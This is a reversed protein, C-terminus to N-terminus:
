ILRCDLSAPLKARIALYDEKSMITVESLAPHLPERFKKRGYDILHQQLRTEEEEDLFISADEEEQARLIIVYRRSRVTSTGTKTDFEVDRNQWRWNEFVM